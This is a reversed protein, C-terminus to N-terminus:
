ATFSRIVMVFFAWSILWFPVFFRSKYIIVEFLIWFLKLIRQNNTKIKKGGMEKSNTCHIPIYTTTVWIINKPFGLPNKKPIRSNKPFELDASLLFNNSYPLFQNIQWPKLKQWSKPTICLVLFKSRQVHLLCPWQM